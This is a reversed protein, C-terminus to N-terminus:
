RCCCGVCAGAAAAGAARCLRSSSSAHARPMLRGQMLVLLLPRSPAQCRIRDQRRCSLMLQMVLLGYCCQGPGGHTVTAVEYLRAQLLLLVRVCAATYLNPGRRGAKAVAAPIIAHLLRCIPVHLVMLLLEKKRQLAAVLLAREM